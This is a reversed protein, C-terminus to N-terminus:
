DSFIKVCLESFQQMSDTVTANSDQDSEAAYKRSQGEPTLYATVHPKSSERVMIDEPFRCEAYPNSGWPRLKELLIKQLDYPADSTDGKVTSLTYRCSETQSTVQISLKRANPLEKLIGGARHRYGSPIGYSWHLSIRYELRTISALQAQPNAVVWQEFHDRHSISITGHSYRFKGAEYYAQRSALLLGPCTGKPGFYDM